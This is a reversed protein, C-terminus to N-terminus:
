GLLVQDSQKMSLKMPLGDRVRIRYGLNPHEKDIFIELIFSLRRWMNKIDSMILSMTEESLVSVGVVLFHLSFSVIPNPYLSGVSLCM